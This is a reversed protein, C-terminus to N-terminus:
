RRFYEALRYVRSNVEGMVDLMETHPDYGRDVVGKHFGPGDGGYKFWHWGVCGGNEILGLTLNQYFLGRDRDSKVCFGAGSVGADPREVSQAYWESVIYPVGACRVWEKLRGQEASWRHYYNVTMVDVCGRAGKFVPPSITRGHIRSGMYLHNADYKKIASSVISYYRRSLYEMFAEQDARDIERKGLTRRRDDWWRRAAKYGTDQKPLSLYNALADPRFPLENDSFHGLLWPDDRTAALQGAHEDCFREFEVDFVPMCENPYGREGNRADRQNKYTLMFNWRPTYVMPQSTSRFVQWDSWCGLTNFGYHKLMRGTAVAWQEGSGFKEDLMAEDVGSQNVSCLGISIFLCGDPDVLWWRGGVKKTYFFGRAEVKRDTWGGYRSLRIVSNGEPVDMDSVTRVEIEAWKEGDLVRATGGYVVGVALYVVALCSLRMM